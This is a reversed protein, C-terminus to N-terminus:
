GLVSFKSALSVAFLQKVVDFTQLMDSYLQITSALLMHRINIM